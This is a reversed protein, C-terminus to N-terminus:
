IFNLEDENFWIEFKESFGQGGENVKDIEIFGDTLSEVLGKLKRIEYISELKSCGLLNEETDINKIVNDKLLEAKMILLIM